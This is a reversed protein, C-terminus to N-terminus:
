PGRTSSWVHRPSLAQRQHELRWTLSAVTPPQRRGRRGPGQGGPGLHRGRSPTAPRKSAPGCPRLTTTKGWRGGRDGPGPLPGSTLLAKAVEAQRENLRVGRSLETKGCPRLQPARALGGAGEAKSWSTPWSPWGGSTRWCAPPRGCRGGPAPWRRCPVAREDSLVKQVASTWCRSPCATSSRRWRWSRTGAPRFDEGGGPTWRPSATRRGAPRRHRPEPPDTTGARGAGRRGGARGAPLRGRGARGAVPARPRRGPRTSKRDRTTRAAMLGPRTPRRRGVAADIQASRTAHVEWAEKPIGAIAFSGLPGLPRPRGRHWLRARGGQGGGGHPRHRHRRAPPGAVPRHRAGKWGGRDDGMAVVNALLVHDHAQPDGARTTAHRSVAWTLGGTGTRM